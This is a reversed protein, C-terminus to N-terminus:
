YETYDDVNITSTNLERIEITSKIKCIHCAYILEKIPPHTMYMIGTDQVYVMPKQCRPCNPIDSM